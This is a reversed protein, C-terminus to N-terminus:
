TLRIGEWDNTSLNPVLRRFESPKDPVVLVLCPGSTVSYKIGGSCNLIQKVTQREERTLSSKFPLAAKGMKTVGVHLTYDSL